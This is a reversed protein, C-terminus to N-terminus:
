RHLPLLKNKYTIAILPFDAYGAAVLGIAILYLWFVRPLGEGELSATPTELERPNPYIRQAALLVTLGVFAPIALIAFGGQYGTQLYMMAAVALPGTVAGIQDM